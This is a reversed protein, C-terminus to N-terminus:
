QLDTMRHAVTTSFQLTRDNNAYVDIVATWSVGNEIDAPTLQTSPIVVLRNDFRDVTDKRILEDSRQTLQRDTLSGNGTLYKWTNFAVKQITCMGLATILSNLVSTEDPYVTQYAPFFQSHTDWNQVWILGNTWSKDYTQATKSTLNIKKQIEVIKKEESDFAQGNTWRGNGAGMYRSVKHALEATLPMIQRGPQTIVEGAHGVVACRCAPTNHIESEPYLLAANQLVELLSQEDSESNVPIKKWNEPTAAGIYDAASQTALFVFTDKRRAMITLLALKTDVSFGSDWVASIPYKAMDLLPFEGQGFSLAETKVMGDFLRLIELKDPKGNAMMPLGDDGGSAYLITDPGLNVGGFATGSNLDSAFYPVGNIDLGSFLNFLHMNTVDAFQLAASRGYAAATTDYDKEGKIEVGGITEGQTLRNLVEALYDQYVHVRGFPAAVPVIGATDTTYMDVMNDAFSMSRNFRPHIVDEPLGLDMYNEGNINQIVTTTLDIEAREVLSFRYLYSRISEVLDISLPSADRTTPIQLRLGQRDGYKGESEVEMDLIPYLMSEGVVDNDSADKYVGLEMGGTSTVSGLRFTDLIRGRSFLKDNGVYDAVGVHWIGRYGNVMHDVIPQGLPGAQTIRISGDSTREYVPIQAPILELSLRLMAKKAGAPILRQFMVANGNAMIINALTTQHTHYASNNNFSARGYRALASDGVAIQPEKGGREALIYILPLHQPTQEPQPTITRTSTDKIGTTSFRPTMKM